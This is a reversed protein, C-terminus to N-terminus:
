ASRKLRLRERLSPKADAREDVQEVRAGSGTRTACVTALEVEQPYGDVNCKYSETTITVNQFGLMGMVERYWGHSYHYWAHPNDPRDARGCLNTFPTDGELNGEVVILTEDCVRAAAALASLGDRLHVLIQGLIVVDFGAGDLEYVDGYFCRAGSGLEHHCLWYSNRLRDLYRSANAHWATYDDVFATGNIPLVNWLGASSVDFSTVESGRREAEFSLFGSATGVDLVRKGSLDQHAIYDEFRGVLDWQGVQPGSLPLDVSHYFDCEAVEVGLRPEAERWEM